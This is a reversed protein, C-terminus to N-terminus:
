NKSFFLFFFCMLKPRAWVSGPKRQFPKIENVTWNFFYCYLWTWLLNLLDQLKMHNPISLHKWTLAQGWFGLLEDLTESDLSHFPSWNGATHLPFSPGRDEAIWGSLWQLMISPSSRRPLPPFGTCTRVCALERWSEKWKVWPWNGLSYGDQSGPLTKEWGVVEETGLDVETASTVFAERIRVESFLAAHQVYVRGKYKKKM